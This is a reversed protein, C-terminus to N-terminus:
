AKITEAGLESLMSSCWNGIIMGKSLDLVRIRGLNEPKKFNESQRVISELFLPYEKAQEAIGGYVDDPTPIPVAPWDRRARSKDIPTKAM